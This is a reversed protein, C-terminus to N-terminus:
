VFARLTHECPVRLQEHVYHLKHLASFTGLGVQFCGLKFKVFSALSEPLLILLQELKLLLDLIVLIVFSILYSSM